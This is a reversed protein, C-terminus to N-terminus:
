RQKMVEIIDVISMMSEIAGAREKSLYPKIASILMQRRGKADSRAATPVEPEAVAGVAEEARPSESKDSASEKDALHSIEEILKPNEMILNVIRSLDPAREDSM